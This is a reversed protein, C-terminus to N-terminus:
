AEAESSGGAEGEAEAEVDETVVEEEPQFVEAGREAGTAWENELVAWNRNSLIKTWTEVGNEIVYDCSAQTTDTFWSVAPAISPMADLLGRLHQGAGAFLDLFTIAKKGKLFEQKQAM